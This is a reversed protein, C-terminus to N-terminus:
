VQKCWCEMDEFRGAIHCNNLLTGTHIYGARAFVRNMGSSPARALTYCHSIGAAAMDDELAALLHSALGRGRAPPATAFDTLEANALAPVTEASAAALLRGREDEVLRFRVDAEMGRAIFDADDIPFPYSAFVQDYLAALRPADDPNAPRCTTGEPLPPPEQPAGTADAIIAELTRRAEPALDSSSRGPTLFCSMVHADEGAFYGEIRAERHYGARQLTERDAAQAKVFVKGYEQRRAIELWRGAARELEERDYRIVRLRKNHDSLVVTAGALRATLSHPTSEVLKVDPPLSPERLTQSANM